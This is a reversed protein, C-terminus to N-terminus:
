YVIVHLYLWYGIGAHFEMDIGSNCCTLIDVWWTYLVWDPKPEYYLPDLEFERTPNPYSPTFVRSTTSFVRPKYTGRNVELLVNTAEEGTIM